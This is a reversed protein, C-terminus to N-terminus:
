AVILGCKTHNFYSIILSYHYHFIWEWVHVWQIVVCKSQIAIM